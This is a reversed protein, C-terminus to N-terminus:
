EMKEIRYRRNALLLYVAGSWQFDPEGGGPETGSFYNERIVEERNLVNELLQDAMKDAEDRYGNQWLLELIWLSLHPWIRGRWYGRPDYAQDDRSVYPLPLNGGFRTSKFLNECILRDQFEPEFPMGAWIPLLSTLVRCRNFTQLNHDYDHFYDTERDYCIKLLREPIHTVRNEVERASSEDGTLRYLGALFGADAYLFSNLAVSAVPPLFINWGTITGRVHAIYNDYQPADDAIQGTFRIEALGDRDHDQTLTYWDFVGRIHPLIKRVFELNGCKEYLRTVGWGFIPAQPLFTSGPCYEYSHTPVNGDQRQFAFVTELAEEALESDFEGLGLSGFVSDWFFVTSAWGCPMCFSGHRGSWRGFSGGQYISRNLIMAARIERRFGAREQGPLRKMRALIRQAAMQFVDDFPKSFDVCINWELRKEWPRNEAQLAFELPRDPEVRGLDILWDLGAPASLLRMPALGSWRWSACWDESIGSLQEAKRDTQSAAFVVTRDPLETIERHTFAAAWCGAGFVRCATVYEKGCSSMELRMRYYNFSAATVQLRMRLVTEGVAAVGSVTVGGADTSLSIGTVPVPKTLGDWELLFRLGPATLTERLNLLGRPCIEGIGMTDRCFALGLHSGQDVYCTEASDGSFCNHLFLDIQNHHREM